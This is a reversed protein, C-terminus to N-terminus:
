QKTAVVVATDRTVSDTVITNITKLDPPVIMMRKIRIAKGDHLDTEELTGKGLRKASVNSVALDGKYPAETGDLKASYSEGIPNTMSLTDDEVRLTFMLANESLAEMKSFRWSGSIAHASASHKNKGVRVVSDRGTVPDGSAHSDHTYEFTATNGDTSVTVKSITVVKNNKERTEDITREDVVKVSITDFYPSGPVSQDTGDAKVKIIPVCSKCPIYRM